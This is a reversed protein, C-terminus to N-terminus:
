KKISGNKAKRQVRLKNVKHLIKDIILLVVVGIFGGGIMSIHMTSLAYRDPTLFDNLPYYIITTGVLVSTTFLVLFILFRSQKDIATM